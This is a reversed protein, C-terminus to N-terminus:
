QDILREKLENNEKEMAILRRELRAAINSKDRAEMKYTNNEIRIKSLEESAKKRDWKAAKSMKYKYIKM